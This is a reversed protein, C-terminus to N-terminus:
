ATFHQSAWPCIRAEEKSLKPLLNYYLMRPYSIGERM